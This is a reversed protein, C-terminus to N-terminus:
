VKESILDNSQAPKIVVVTPGKVDCPKLIIGDIVLIIRPVHRLYANVIIIIWFNASFPSVFEEIGAADLLFLLWHIFTNFLALFLSM